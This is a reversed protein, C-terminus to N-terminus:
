AAIDKRPTSVPAESVWWSGRIPAVWGAVYVGGPPRLLATALEPFHALNLWRIRDVELTLNQRFGTTQRVEAAVGDVPTWIGSPITQYHTVPIGRGPSAAIPPVPAGLSAALDYRGVHSM